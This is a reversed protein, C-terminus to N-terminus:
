PKRTWCFIDTSPQRFCDAKRIQRAHPSVVSCAVRYTSANAVLLLDNQDSYHILLSTSTLQQKAWHFARQQKPGWSWPQFFITTNFSHVILNLLFKAYFNFLEFFSELQHLDSPTLTDWVAQVKEQTPQTGESSVTHGLYHVQSMM